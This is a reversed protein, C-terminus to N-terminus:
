CPGFDYSAVRDTGSLLRAEVHELTGAAGAVVPVLITAVGSTGPKIDITPAAFLACDHVSYRAQAKTAPGADYEINVAVTDGVRVQSGLAPTVGLVKIRPGAVEPHCRADAALQTQWRAEPTVFHGIEVTYQCIVIPRFANGGAPFVGGLTVRASSGPVIEMAGTGEYLNCDNPSACYLINWGLVNSVSGAQYEVGISINVSAQEIHAGLPPDLSVVQVSPQISADATPLPTPPEAVPPVTPVPGETATAEIVPTSTATVTASATASAPPTGSSTALPVVSGSDSLAAHLAFGAGFLVAASAAGAGIWLVRSRRTAGGFM